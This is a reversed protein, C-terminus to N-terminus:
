LAITTSPRMTGIYGTASVGTLAVTVDNSVAVPVRDMTQTAVCDEAHTHPMEERAILPLVILLLIVLAV